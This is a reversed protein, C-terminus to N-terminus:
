TQQPEGIEGKGEGIAKDVIKKVEAASGGLVKGFIDGIMTTIADKPEDKADVTVKGDKAIVVFFLYPLGKDRRVVPPSVSVDIVTGGRVSDIWRIVFRGVAIAATAIIAISIPDIANEQGPKYSIGEVVDAAAWVQREQVQPTNDDDFAVVVELNAM